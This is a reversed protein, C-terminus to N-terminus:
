RSLRTGWVLYSVGFGILLLPWFVGSWGVPLLGLNDLLWAGGALVLVGGFLTAGFRGRPCCCWAVYHREEVPGEEKVQGNM